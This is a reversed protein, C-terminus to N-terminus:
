TASTRTACRSTQAGTFSTYSQPLPAAASTAGCSKRARSQVGDPQEGLAVAGKRIMVGIRRDGLVELIQLAGDAALAGLQADREVAVHGIPM